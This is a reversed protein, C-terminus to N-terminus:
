RIYKEYYGKKQSDIMIDQLQSLWTFMRNEISNRIISKILLTQRYNKIFVAPVPLIM